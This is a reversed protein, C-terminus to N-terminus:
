GSLNWNKRGLAVPKVAREAASNDPSLLPTELYTQLGDWLNLAYAIAGAFPTKPIATKQKEELHERFIKFLAQARKKRKELFEQETIKERYLQERLDSELKFIAAIDGIIIEADNRISHTALNKKQKRNKGGAGIYIDFFKRRVHALCFAHGLKGDRKKVLSRYVGYADSQITGEYGELLKEAASAARTPFYRYSAAPEGPGDYVRLWIYSKCTNERGQEGLVLLTTEDIHIVEKSLIHQEVLDVLPQLLDTIQIQWRSLNQRSVAFGSNSFRVSQRAYPLHYIFKDSLSAAILGNGVMGGRIIQDAPRAAQIVGSGKCPSCAYKGIIYRKVTLQAPEYDLVEVIDEGIRVLEAGCATCILAFEEPTVQIDVRPIDKPITSRGSSKKRTKKVPEKTVPEEQEDANQEAENFQTDEPIPEESEAVLEQNHPLRESNTVFKRRAKAATRQDLIDLRASLQAVLENSYKLAQRLQTNEAKLGAMEQAMKDLLQHEKM